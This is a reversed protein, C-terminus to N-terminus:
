FCDNINNSRNKEDRRANKQIVTDLVRRNFLGTLQDTYAELQYYQKQDKYKRLTANMYNLM